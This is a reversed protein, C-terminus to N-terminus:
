DEADPDSHSPWHLRDCLYFLGVLSTVIMHAFFYVYFIAVLYKAIVLFSYHLKAHELILFFINFLCLVISIFALYGFLFCLFRRRSLERKKSIGNESSFLTPPNDGDIKGDISKGNFTAIAALAAIYFGPLVGLLSSTSMAVDYLKLPICWIHYFFLVCIVSLCPIAVDYICKAKHQICFYLLPRLLRSESIIRDLKKKCM